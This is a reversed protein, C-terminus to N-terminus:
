RDVTFKNVRSTLPYEKGRWVFAGPLDVPCKIRVKVKDGSVRYSVEVPGKPTAAAAELSTLTGLHPAVRVSAYGPAAPQIGAVLGLLDATPHASWAHSDSRTKGREEPWTSYHLKLLDRWTELLGWYRESQGAHELARVLYWSFYYSSSLVGEPADITKDKTIRKLIEPAEQPTAVDYIIALVNTHQSFVTKAPDDAFLGRSEDWCLKRVGGAILAARAEYADALRADGGCTRELVAADKLAGLYILSTMASRGEDGKGEFSPFKNRPILPQGVWDVFNWYPNRRLLGEPQLYTEFWALVERMRPLNRTIVSTDPQQLWYDHMTNIWLLSFPPIINAQRNPYAGPTLGGVERVDGFGNILQVPLRSDGSVAYTILAQLRADGLYQLQEWYSSDMYTEHANIFATRRGIQWIQNLEPDSSEFRGVKQFPYGTEYIKLAELTLPEDGTQVDLEMYWWVRWWLPAFMRQAGDAIFVDSLGRLQRDGVEDRIGKMLKPEYLAEAYSMKITAGRGGSVTLEPYAAVMAERRLLIKVQKGAPVTVVQKPFIEAEPFDTRVVKGSDVLQYRMQPLPDAELTWPSPVGPALALVAAMWDSNAPTPTNWTWDCAGADIAESPGAAYFSPPTLGTVATHGKDIRVRWETGSNLTRQDLHEANLWFGVGASLQAAPINLKGAKPPKEGVEIKVVPAVFSWVQATIYNRGKKLQPALDFREYRWHAQDSRAPGAGVRQGNVYLIFRNDASVQVPFTKPARELDFDRRFTMVVPSPVGAEPHTIWVGESSATGPAATQAATVWCLLCPFLLLLTNRINLHKM